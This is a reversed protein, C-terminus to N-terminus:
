GAVVQEGADEAAETDPFLEGGLLVMLARRRNGVTDTQRM